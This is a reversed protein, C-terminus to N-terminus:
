SISVCEHRRSFSLHAPCIDCGPFRIESVLHFSSHLDFCLGGERLAERRERKCGYQRDRSARFQGRLCPPSAGDADGEALGGTEGKGIDAFWAADDHVPPEDVGVAYDDGARLPRESDWEALHNRNVQIPVRKVPVLRSNLNSGFDFHKCRAIGSLFREVLRSTNSLLVPLVVTKTIAMMYDSVYKALQKLAFRQAQRGHLPAIPINSKLSPLVMTKISSDQRM